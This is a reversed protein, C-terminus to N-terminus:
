ERQENEEKIENNGNDTENNGGKTEVNGENTYCNNDDNIKNDEKKNENDDKMGGCKDFQDIYEDLSNQYKSIELAYDKYYSKIKNIFESFLSKLENMLDELKTDFNFRGQIKQSNNVFSTFEEFSKKMNNECEELKLKVEDFEEKRSTDQNDEDYVEKLMENAKKLEEKFKEVHANLGDVKINKMRLLLNNIYVILENYKQEQNKIFKLISENAIGVQKFISTDITNIKDLTNDINMEQIQPISEITESIQKYIMEINQENKNENGFDNYDDDDCDHKKTMEAGCYLCVFNNLKTKEGANTNSKIVSEIRSILDNINGVKSIDFTNLKLIDNVILAIVKNKMNSIFLPPTKLNFACVCENLLDDFDSKPLFVQVLVICLLVIDNLFITMNINDYKNDSKYYKTISDISSPYHIYGYYSLIDKYIFPEQILLQVIAYFMYDITYLQKTKSDLFLLDSHILSLPMNHKHNTHFSNVVKCLSYFYHLKYLTTITKTEAKFLHTFHEKNDKDYVITFSNTNPNFSFGLRKLCHTSPIPINMINEFIQKANQNSLLNISIYPLEIIFVKKINNVNSSETLDKIIGEYLIFANTHKIVVKDLIQYSSCNKDIFYELIPDYKYKCIDKSSIRIM